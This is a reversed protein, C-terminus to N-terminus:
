RSVAGFFRVAELEEAAAIELLQRPGALRYFFEGSEPDSPDRQIWSRRVADIAASAVADSADALKLFDERHATAFRGCLTALDPMDQDAFWADFEHYREASEREAALARLRFDEFSRVPSHELTQGM